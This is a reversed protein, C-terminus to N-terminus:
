SCWLGSGTGDKFGWESCSEMAKEKLPVLGNSMEAIHELEAWESSKLHNGKLGDWAIDRNKDENLEKNYNDSYTSDGTVAYSQVSATLIKSGLRYQNLYVTNELQENRCQDSYVSLGVFIVWFVIGAIM